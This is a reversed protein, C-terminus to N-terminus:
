FLLGCRGAVAMGSLVRDGMKLQEGVLRVCGNADLTPSKTCSNIQFKLFQIDWLSPM